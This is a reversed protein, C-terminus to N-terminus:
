VRKRSLSINNAIIRGKLNFNSSEIRVTGNPAYIIGKIDVDTSRIVIDGESCILIEDAKFSLPDIVITKTSYINSNVTVNNGYIRMQEENKDIWGNEISLEEGDLRNGIDFLLKAM